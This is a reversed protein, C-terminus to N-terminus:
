HRGDLVIRGNPQLQDCDIGGGPQGFFLKFGLFRQSLMHNLQGAVCDFRAATRNIQQVTNQISGFLGPKPPPMQAVLCDLNPEIRQVQLALTDGLDALRRLHDLVQERSTKPPAQAVSSQLRDAASSLLEGFLRLQEFQRQVQQSSQGTLMEPRIQAPAQRILNTLQKLNQVDARMQPSAPQRSLASLTQELRQGSQRIDALIQNLETLETPLTAPGELLSQVGSQIQGAAGSINPALDSELFQRNVSELTQGVQGTLTGFQGSVEQISSRAETVGASLDAGAQAWNSILGSGQLESGLSALTVDFRRAARGIGAVTGGMNRTNDTFAAAATEIGRATRNFQYISTKAPDEMERLFLDLRNSAIEMHSVTRQTSVLIKELTRQEAIRALQEQLKDWTLTVAGAVMQGNRIYGTEARPKEPPEIEVYRQGTIGELRIYPQVDDPLLLNKMTVGVQVLTSRGDRALSVDLVRGVQVGRYYVAVGRSIPDPNAYQVTFAYEPKAAQARIWLLGGVIVLTSLIIFLGVPFAKQKLPNRPM